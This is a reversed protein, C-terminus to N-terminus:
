GTVTISIIDSWQGERKDKKLYIVRYQWVESKGPPPLPSEDIFDPQLDIALLKLVGNEDMKHIELADMDLKKWAMYPHGGAGLRLKIDPKVNDASATKETGEIGLDEGDALTYHIHAKIRKVLSTVRVFIGPAVPMPLNMMPLTLQQLIGGNKLGKFMSNRHEVVGTVSNRLQNLFDNLAAYYQASQQVDMLEEPTIGYKVAYYVLKAAFNNLWTVRDEESRPLYYDKKM